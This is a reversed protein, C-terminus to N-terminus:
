RVQRFSFYDKDSKLCLTLKYVEARIVQRYNLKQNKETIVTDLKDYLAKILMRKGDENLLVAGSEERIFHERKIYGKNVLRLITRDVILPKFLEAIDLNLSTKRNNTAHLFGVRIDLPSKNIETAILNYLVSNGFSLMANFENRPPRRTRKGFCFDENEIFKDFCSYYLERAKAELLLLNDYKTESRVKNAIVYSSDIAAKFSDCPKQKNYYRINLRFNHISGLVFQKAFELRRADDYYALLQQHTVRPSKLSAFPTFTGVIGGSKDFINIETGRNLAKKLFGSDFVVDSYINIVDVSEVPISHSGTDNEFLLSYDKQRLVGDSLIDRAKRSNYLEAEHWLRYSTKHPANAEFAVIGKKDVEFRYGLFKLKAPSDIRFKHENVALKLKESLFSKALASKKRIAELSDAFIVIDDAYRIFEIDNEELFNDFGNLYINCLLLSIPAGQIIGKKPEFPEGNEIYPMRAFKMILRTVEGNQVTDFVAKELVGYDINDFCAAPDIKAALRYNRANTCYLELADGIGRGERYAFSKPSFNAECIETVADIVAYQVISDIASLKSLRRYGGGKKATRFAAAPMPEYYGKELERCLRKGNIEVWLAAGSATMGDSGPKFNKASLQRAKALLIEKNAIQNMM